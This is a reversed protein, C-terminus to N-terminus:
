SYNASCLALLFRMSTWGINSDLVPSEDVDSLVMNLYFKIINKLKPFIAKYIELCFKLVILEIKLLFFYDYDM